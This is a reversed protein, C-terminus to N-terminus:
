KYLDRNVSSLLLFFVQELFLDRSQVPLLIIALTTILHDLHQENYHSGNSTVPPQIFHSAWKGVGAPCRYPWYHFSTM